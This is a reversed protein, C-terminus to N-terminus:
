QAKGTKRVTDLVIALTIDQKESSVFSDQQAVWYLTMILVLFSVVIKALPPKWALAQFHFSRLARHCIWMLENPGSLEWGWLLKQILTYSVCLCIHM